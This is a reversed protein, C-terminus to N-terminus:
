LKRWILFFHNSIDEVILGISRTKGTRLSSAIMNLKFKMEESIKLVKKIVEKSIGMKEGKNNM